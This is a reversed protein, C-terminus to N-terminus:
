LIHCHAAFERELAKSQEGVLSIGPGGSMRRPQTPFEEFWPDLADANQIFHRYLVAQAIGHRLYRGRGGGANQDKLEVAWPRGTDDALLADLYRAPRTVNGWLTPFQAAAILGSRIPVASQLSEGKTTTLPIRGSLVHAELAHETQKHMLVAGPAAPDRWVAILEQVLAVAQPLEPALFSISSRGVVKRWGERTPIDVWTPVVTIMQNPGVRAHLTVPPSM